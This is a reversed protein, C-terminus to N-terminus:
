WYPQCGGTQIVSGYSSRTSFMSFLDVPLFLVDAVFSLPLDALVLPYPIFLAEASLVFACPQIVASQLTGSLPHGFEGNDIHTSVSSCGLIFISMSVVVIIRIKKYINYM